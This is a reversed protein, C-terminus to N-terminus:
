TDANKFDDKMFDSRAIGWYGVMVAMQSSLLIYHLKSLIM